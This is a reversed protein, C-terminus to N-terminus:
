FNKSNVTDNSSFTPAYVQIISISKNSDIKLKLKAIRDSIGEFEGLKSSWEKKILFGVGRQGENNGKYCLLNGAKTQIIREGEKRVESM